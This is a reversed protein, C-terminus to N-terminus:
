RRLTGDASILFVKSDDISLAGEARLLAASFNLHRFKIFITKARGASVANGFVVKTAAQFYRVVPADTRETIPPDGGGRLMWLLLIECQRRFKRPQYILRAYYKAQERCWRADQELEAIKDGTLPSERILRDSQRAREEFIQVYEEPPLKDRRIRELEALWMDQDAGGPLTKAVTRWDSASPTSNSDAKAM